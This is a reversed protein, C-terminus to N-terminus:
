DNAEGTMREWRELTELHEPEAGDFVVETRNKVYRFSPMPIVDVKTRKVSSPVFTPGPITEIDVLMTPHDYVVRRVFTGRQAAEPYDTLKVGKGALMEHMHRQTKGQLEKHSFHAQALMSVANREADLARWLLMNAAEYDQPLQLVRADFCPLRDEYPAWGRIEKGFAATALGALVSTMKTIKGNFFISSKYDPAKWVLSIEDSQTYGILAGTHQVLYKTTEIMAASMRPDFPKDMGRTFKSFGRGDIRAYVPLMSLFRRGTEHFEYEKMRDGLDDKGAM